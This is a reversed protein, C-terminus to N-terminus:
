NSQYIYVAVLVMFVCFLIVIHYYREEIQNEQQTTNLIVIKYLDENTIAKKKSKIFKHKVKKYGRTLYKKTIYIM